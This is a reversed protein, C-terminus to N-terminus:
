GGMVLAVGSTCLKEAPTDTVDRGDFTVTGHSPRELGALVRRVTSKGAGNTGLLGLGEGKAVTFSIGFLVQVPGYAFEIERLEVFATSKVVAGRAAVASVYIIAREYHM